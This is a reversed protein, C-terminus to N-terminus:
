RHADPVEGAGRASIEVSPEELIVFSGDDQQEYLTVIPFPIAGTPGIGTIYSAITYIDTLGDFNLETFVVADLSLPTYSM